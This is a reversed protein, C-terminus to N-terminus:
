KTIVRLKPKQVQDRIKFKFLGYNIDIDFVNIREKVKLYNALLCEPILFVTTTLIKFITVSIFIQVLDHLPIKSLFMIPYAILNYIVEGGCTSILSRFWYHKGNMIIKFKSVLYNNVNMGAITGLTGAIYIGPMSGLILNFAPQYKFDLPSPLHILFFALVTFITSSIVFWWMLNRGVPYGYVETTVNSLCYTLPTTFIGAPLLFPGLIIIKYVILGSLNSLTMYLMVVGILYNYTFNSTRSLKSFTEIDQFKFTELIKPM